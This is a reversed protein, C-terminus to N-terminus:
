TRHIIVEEDIYTGYDESFDLMVGHVRGDSYYASSQYAKYYVLSECLDRRKDAWVAPKGDSPPKNKVTEAANDQKQQFPTRKSAIIMSANTENAKLSITSTKLKKVAIQDNTDIKRKPPGGAIRSVTPSRSNPKAKATAKAKPM